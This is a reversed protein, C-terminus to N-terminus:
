DCKYIIQKCKEYIKTRQKKGNESIELKDLMKDFSKKDRYRSDSQCLPESAYLKACEDSFKNTNNIEIIKSNQNEVQQQYSALEAKQNDITSQLENIKQENDVRSKDLEDAITLIQEDSALGLLLSRTPTISMGLIPTGIVGAVIGLTILTKKM